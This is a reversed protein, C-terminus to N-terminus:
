RCSRSRRPTRPEGRRLLDVAVLLHDPDAGRVDRGPKKWPNGTLVLPERVATASCVPALVCSVPRTPASAIVRISSNTGPRNRLRGVASAPRPPSRRTGTARRCGRFPAVGTALPPGLERQRDGGEEPTASRPTSGPMAIATARDIPLTNRRAQHGYWATSPRARSTRRTDRRGCSGRRRVAGPSCARGTRRAATRRWRASTGRRIRASAADSGGGTHIMTAASGIVSTSVVAASM